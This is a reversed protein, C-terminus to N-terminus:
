IENKSEKKFAIKSYKRLTKIFDEVNEKSEFYFNVRSKFSKFKDEGSAKWNVKNITGVKMEISNSGPIPSILQILPQKEKM